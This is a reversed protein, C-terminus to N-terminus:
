ARQNTKRLNEAATLVQLNWPVHLGRANDGKLPEIHDVHHLVGTQVTRARAIDYFEQLQARQINSLWTPTAQMKDARRKGQRAAHKSPYRERHKAAAARVDDPHQERRRASNRRRRELERETPNAQMTQYSRRVREKHIDPAAARRAASKDRGKQPDADYAKKCAKRVYGRVKDRNAAQWKVVAANHCAKCSGSLRGGGKGYYDALPKPMGCKTCTKM